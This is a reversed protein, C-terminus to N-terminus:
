LSGKQQLGHWGQGRVHVVYANVRLGHAGDRGYGMYQQAEAYASVVRQLPLGSPFRHFACSSM